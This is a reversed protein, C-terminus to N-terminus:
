NQWSPTGETTPSSLIDLPRVRVESIRVDTPAPPTTGPLGAAAAGYAVATALREPAPAGRLDALLYGFLSADGAGVTSVVTTPPPTAHWAGTGDVLVAGAAGLTALVAGASRGSLTAAATAAAV